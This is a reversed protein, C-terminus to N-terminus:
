IALNSLWVSPATPSIKVGSKIGTGIIDTAPNIQVGVWSNQLNGPCVGSIQSELRLTKQWNFMNENYAPLILNLNNFTLYYTLTPYKSFDAQVEVPGALQISNDTTENFLYLNSITTTGCGGSLSSITFKLSNLTIDEEKSAMLMVKGLDNSGNMLKNTGVEVKQFNMQGSTMPAVCAGDVCNTGTPCNYSNWSVKNQKVNCFYELIRTGSWCKDEGIMETNNSGLGVTMGKQSLNVYKYTALPMGAANVTATDTDKCVLAGKGDPSMTTLAAAAAVASVGLFALAIAIQAKSVTKTKVQTETMTPEDSM